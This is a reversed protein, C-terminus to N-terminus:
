KQFKILSKAFDELITTLGKDTAREENTDDNTNKLRLLKKIKNKSNKVEEGLKFIFKKEELQIENKKISNNNSHNPDTSVAVESMKLIEDVLNNVYTLNYSGRPGIKLMKGKKELHLHNQSLHNPLKDNDFNSLTINYSNRSKELSNMNVQGEVKVETKKHPLQPIAQNRKNVFLNIMMKNIESSIVDSLKLIQDVSIMNQNGINSNENTMKLIFNNLDIHLDKRDNTQHINDNNLKAEESSPKKLM